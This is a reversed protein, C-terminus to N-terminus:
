GARRIRPDDSQDDAYLGTLDVTDLHDLDIDDEDIRVVSQAVHPAPPRVTADYGPKPHSTVRQRRNQRRDRDRLAQSRLFLLYGGLGLIALVALGLLIAAGTLWAALLLIVSAATLTTLSRRRRVLMRRRADSLDHRDPPYMLSEKSVPVPRRSAPAAIPAAPSAAAREVSGATPPPTPDPTLAGMAAGFRAVTREGAREDKRRVVMPVVVILWLVALLLVTMMPSAM